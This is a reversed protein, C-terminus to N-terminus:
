QEWQGRQGPEQQQRTGPGPAAAQGEEGLEVRWAGAVAQRGRDMGAGVAEATVGARAGGAPSRHKSGLLGREPGGREM